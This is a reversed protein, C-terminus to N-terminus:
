PRAARDPAQWGPKVVGSAMGDQLAPAPPLPTSPTAGLATRVRAHVQEAIQTPPLRADVVLYHGPDEAAFDAFAARVRQHFSIPEAELRDPTDFRSFAVEPPLDLLVTLHPRLDGTAWRALREVEALRLDRGAGQYALTSDVYRDTIVVAGRDLAPRVVQEVHQAKDAAYLLAEARHSLPGTAPDLLIARLLEGVATDGPERTLVVERGDAALAEALLRAQTSKGAGEGGEFAVFLGHEAYRGTHRGWSLVARRLDARLSTGRRDDMQRYALLGVITALVAALMFTIAAGNYDLMVDDSIRIVHTGILGSVLPAVALVLALTLRIMSQVFAFTRGRLNDAVELGLLTYGTIWATGACYGLALVLLCVIVLNQVLAIGALLLGALTLSLGFLRRRSFGRLVRPGFWMGIALGAFVSGFLMGYGPDGAGLDDVYVRALGIVVGGAAFAGVIGGVLGRVMPTHRVFAWGEAVTRWVNVQQDPAVASGRPIEHLTWLICASVLFTTANFYLALDVPTANSLGLVSAVAKTSLTLATFLAAAPLASGYTTAMSLQNAAELRERPVLNPVTADKAPLWVLSVAEILVTAVFLWTLTGIIPISAFLGFRLVDGIVLTWRRDLRDAIYGALPGVVVAPLVRLFLVGAIAFNQNAYGAPALESAMATLALLGLWDGLSSLGLGIWLRRFARLRLVAAVSHAPAALPPDTSRSRAVRSLTTGAM